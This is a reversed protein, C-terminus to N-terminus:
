KFYEDLILRKSTSGNKDEGFLPEPPQPTTL